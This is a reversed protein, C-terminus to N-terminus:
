HREKLWAAVPATQTRRLAICNDIRELTQDLTRTSAALEHASFFRAIDDRAAADCFSGLASVLNTDGGFITVKPELAAWNQKVFRWARANVEPDGLFQALFISTDQSRMDPSLALKLGRDVLVPDTFDALAYLYRYHDDPTRAGAAAANLADFLAADGHRAAVSTIAGAMTPDLAQGGALARDLAERARRAVDPDHAFGGLARVVTARLQRTEDSDNAAPEFTVADYIPRLLRRAFAQFRSRQPPGGTLYADIFGLRDTVVALAGSSKETSFGTALTLYDSVSHRGARVLAWEDSMLSIREPATFATELDAAMAPLQAAPYEARFYGRAGGNLFVWSPCGSAVDLTQERKAIM